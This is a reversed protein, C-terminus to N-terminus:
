HKDFIDFTTKREMHKKRHSTVHIDEDGIHSQINENAPEFDLSPRDTLSNYSKETLDNLNHNHTISAYITDFFAKLKAKINLWTTKVIGM